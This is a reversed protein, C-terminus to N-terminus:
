YTVAVRGVYEPDKVFLVCSLTAIDEVQVFPVNPYTDFDMNRCKLRFCGTTENLEVESAYPVGNTRRYTRGNDFYMMSILETGGNAACEAKFQDITM